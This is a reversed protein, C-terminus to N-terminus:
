QGWHRWAVLSQLKPFHALCHKLADRKQGWWLRWSGRLFTIEILKQQFRWWPLWAHLTQVWLPNWNILHQLYSLFGNAIKPSKYLQTPLVKTKLCKARIKRRMRGNQHMMKFIVQNVALAILQNYKRRVAWTLAPKSERCKAKPFSEFDMLPILSKRIFNWVLYWAKLSQCHPEPWM